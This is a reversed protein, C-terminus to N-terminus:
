LDYLEGFKDELYRLYPATYLPRGTAREVLEDPYYRSGHRHVNERLWGLLTSFRGSRTEEPIEPHAKLAAGFFQVSLVSGIVYTPFYGFLGDAWHIDQLVGASDNKPIVGLYEEMKSNWAVPLDAVCLSGEILAVELEFRLLIHLNYTAEDAEVRIKSPALVNIARYFTELDVKHLAEPFTDRLRPYFYSWFARSRGVLNEWLRSQSEHVGMSTGGGLPTRAYSPDVGQEYLAHGAEHMTGFLAPALWGGDFRTTIRVDGPGFNICFPHVSRDQRGREWDYGFASIVARGFEEQGAEGFPGKLPAARDKGDGKAVVARILPLVGEKLEKFMVELRAKEAGPEYADLLTDYPHNEYGLAEAAERKLALIKELHPAFLPWDSEERARVWAPEALATARSTEAVLEAPLRTAREYDRLARRLLAGEESSPDPEGSADLLSKTEDDTLMEHALRSLTAVQEARGAVGGGPMYTQQDWFLLSRTSRLDSM